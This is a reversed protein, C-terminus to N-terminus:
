YTLIMETMQQLIDMAVVLVDPAGRPTRASCRGRVVLLQQRSHYNRVARGGGAAAAVVRAGAARGAVGRLM